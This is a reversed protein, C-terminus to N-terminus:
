KGSFWNNFTFPDIAQFASSVLKEKMDIKVVNGSTESKQSPNDMLYTDITRFEYGLKKALAIFKEM